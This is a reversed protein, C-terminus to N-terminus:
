SNLSDWTLLLAEFLLADPAAALGSVGATGAPVFYAAIPRPVVAPGTTSRNTFRTQYLIFQPPPPPSYLYPVPPPPRSSSLHSASSSFTSSSSSSIFFFSLM